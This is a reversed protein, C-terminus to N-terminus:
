HSKIRVERLILQLSKVPKHTVSIGFPRLLRTTTESIDKVYIIIIWENIEM